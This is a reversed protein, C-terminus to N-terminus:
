VQEVEPEATKSAMAGTRVRQGDSADCRLKMQGDRAKTEDNINPDKADGM